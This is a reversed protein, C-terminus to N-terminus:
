RSEPPIARIKRAARGFLKAPFYPDTHLPFREGLHSELVFTLAILRSYYIKLNSQLKVDVIRQNAWINDLRWGYLQDLTEADVQGASYAIFIREFVGLYPEVM